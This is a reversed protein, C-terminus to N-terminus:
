NTLEKLAQHNTGTPSCWPPHASVDRYYTHLEPFYRYILSSIRTVGTSKAPFDAPFRYSM